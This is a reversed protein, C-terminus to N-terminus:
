EKEKIRNMRRILKKRLYDAQRKSINLEECVGDLKENHDLAEVYRELEPEGEAADWMMQLHAVRVSDEEAMDDEDKLTEMDLEKPMGWRKKHRKWENVKEKMLEDVIEIAQEELTYGEKWEKECHFLAKVVEGQYHLLANCGLALDSHAGSQTRGGVLIVTKHPGEVEQAKLKKSIHRTLSNFVERWQHKSVRALRLKQLDQKYTDM